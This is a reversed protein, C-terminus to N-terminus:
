SPAPELAFTTGCIDCAFRGNLGDIASQCQPCTSSTFYAAPAVAADHQPEPAAPDTM